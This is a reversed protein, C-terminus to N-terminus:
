DKRPQKAPAEARVAIGHMDILLGGDTKHIQDPYPYGAAEFKAKIEDFAPKSIELIAYTHTTTM